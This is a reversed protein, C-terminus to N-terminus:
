FAGGAIGVPATIPGSAPITMADTSGSNVIFHIANSGYTGIALDTSGSALYTWGATSFGSGVFGSSNIGFEGFNTTATANNNSVNYNTSATAGANTNQLVMQNYTNVSSAFSALINIDSYGLTGYAFAGVNASGTTSANATVSTATAVGLTPTVLTPSTSLVNNGSGTSTTVGTGGNTTGLTGTVGTSLPLGTANTLTVSTPTGLIPTVLTPSTSLVNNGSGTSTTVGTGGYTVGLANTLNLTNATLTTGNFTLNASGALAGSSNYQVQTNSGGITGAGKTALVQVVGGSDKYFLKGDAYNLALEAGSASSTLNAALPVNTTTGSAYLLIPTYGSQAM